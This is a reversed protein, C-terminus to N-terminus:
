DEYWHLFAVKIIKDRPFDKLLKKVVLQETLGSCKVTKNVGNTDKLTAEYFGKIM